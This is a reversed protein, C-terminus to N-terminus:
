PAICTEGAQSMVLPVRTATLAEHRRATIRSPRRKHGCM